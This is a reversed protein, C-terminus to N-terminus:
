TQTTFEIELLEDLSENGKLKSNLIFEADKTILLVM